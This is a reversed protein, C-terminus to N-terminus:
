IMEKIVDLIENLVDKKVTTIDDEMAVAQIFLETIEKISLDKTELLKRLHSYTLAKIEIKKGMLLCKTDSLIIMCKGNFNDVIEKAEKKIDKSVKERHLINDDFIEDILEEIEKLRDM